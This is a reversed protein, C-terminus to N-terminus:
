KGLAVRGNVVKVGRDADLDLILGKRVIENEAKPHSEAMIWADGALVIVFVVFLIAQYRSIMM